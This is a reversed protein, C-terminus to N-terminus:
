DWDAAVFQLIENSKTYLSLRHDEIKYSIVQPLSTNIDNELQMDECAKLTSIGQSFVIKNKGALEYSYGMQNCGMFVSAQKNDTLQISAKKKILEGKSYNKYSVLMWERHLLTPEVVKQTSICSFLLFSITLFSISQIM